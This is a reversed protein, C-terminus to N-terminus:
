AAPKVEGAPPVGGTGPGSAPVIKPTVINAASQWAPLLEENDAFRVKNLAGMVRVVQVGLSRRQRPSAPALLAAIAGDGPVM